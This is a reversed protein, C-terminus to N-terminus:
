KIVFEINALLIFPYIFLVYIKDAFIENKLFRVYKQLKKSIFFVSFKHFAEFYGYIQKNEFIVRKYRNILGLFSAQKPYKLGKRM